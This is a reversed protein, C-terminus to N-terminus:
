RLKLRDILQLTHVANFVELPSFLAKVAEVEGVLCAVHRESAYGVEVPPVHAHVLGVFRAGRKGLADVVQLRGLGDGHDMDVNM